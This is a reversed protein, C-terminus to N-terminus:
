RRFHFRYLNVKRTSPHRILPEGVEEGLGTVVNVVGDPITSKKVRHAFELTSVSAHESPKIVITNGAALAPAAKWAAIM